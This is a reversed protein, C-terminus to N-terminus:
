SITPDFWFLSLNSEGQRISKSAFRKIGARSVTDDNAILL